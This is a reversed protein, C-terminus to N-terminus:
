VCINAKIKEYISDGIGKVNKIEDISKFRNASRYDIIRDAIVDGIGTLTKLEDKSASNINVRGNSSVTSAAGNANNTETSAQDVQNAFPILIKQGDEVYEAQNISDIDADEKLGGALEIVEYLRTEDDVTYIGPNNVAGSIDVYATVSTEPQEEVEVAQADANVRLFIAVLIVIAIAVIKGTRKRDESIWDKTKGWLGVFDIKM